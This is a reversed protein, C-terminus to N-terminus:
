GIRQIAEKLPKPDIHTYRKHIESTKHGTLEMRLEPSVGSNALASIFSHRLSHFTRRAFNRSGKGKIVMLDLEARRVIRKFGESLGHKGGPTKSALSPCLYGTAHHQSLHELHSVLRSHLPVSVTRLTKKQTFRLFGAEADVHEWSMLICDGMRAGTYAALLIATQWDLNPSASVLKEVEEMTFAERESSIAKPLSVAPVPNRDHVGFKEARGFAAGLIKIDVSATKPAVGQDLRKLLFREIHVPSIGRIPQQASTGLSKLFLDVVHRYREYTAPTNLRKVSELWTRFYAETTETPLSEGIVDRSVENVVKQFQAVAASGQKALKEVREWELAMKLAATKDSLKTSKRVQRGDRTRYCAFWFQSTPRKFLNAM